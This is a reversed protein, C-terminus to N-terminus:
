SNEDSEQVEHRGKRGEMDVNEFEVLSVSLVNAIRTLSKISPVYFDNEVKSIFAQTLEAKEALQVQTMNKAERLQRVREGLTAM